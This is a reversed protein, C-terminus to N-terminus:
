CREKLLLLKRKREDYRNVHVQFSNGNREIYSRIRQGIWFIEDLLFKSLCYEEKCNKPLAIIDQDHNGGKRNEASSVLKKFLDGIRRYVSFDGVSRKKKRFKSARKKQLKARWNEKPKSFFYRAPFFYIAPCILDSSRKQRLFNVVTVFNFNQYHCDIEPSFVTL